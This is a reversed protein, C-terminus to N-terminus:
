AVMALGLSSMTAGLVVIVPGKTMMATHITVIAASVLVMVPGM